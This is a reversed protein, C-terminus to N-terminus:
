LVRSQYGGHHRPDKSWYSDYFEPILCGFPDNYQNETTSYAVGNEDIIVIAELKSLQAAFVYQDAVEGLEVEPNQSRFLALLLKTAASSIQPISGKMTLARKMVNGVSPV